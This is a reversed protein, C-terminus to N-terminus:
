NLVMGQLFGNGQNYNFSTFEGSVGTYYQACDPPAKFNSHCPIQSIKVNWKRTSTTTTSFTFTITGATVQSATELYVTFLLLFTIHQRNLLFAQSAMKAAQELDLESHFKCHQGTITGCLTPPDYGSPSDFAVTDTACQTTTSSPDAIELTDFDFRLQCIGDSM